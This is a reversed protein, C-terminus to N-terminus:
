SNSDIDIIDHHGPFKFSLCGGGVKLFKKCASERPQLQLRLTMYAHAAATGTLRMSTVRPGSPACAVFGWWAGHMGCFGVMCQWQLGFEAAM